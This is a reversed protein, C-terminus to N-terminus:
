DYKIDQVSGTVGELYMKFTHLYPKNKQYIAVLNNDHNVVVDAPATEALVSERALASTKDTYVYVFSTDFSKFDDKLLQGLSELDNQNVYNKDIVVLTVNSQWGSTTNKQGIVEYPIANTSDNGTECGILMIAIFGAILILVLSGMRKM